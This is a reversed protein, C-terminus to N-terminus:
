AALGAPGAVAAAAVVVKLLIPLTLQAVRKSYLFLFCIIIRKFHLYPLSFTMPKPNTKFYFSPSPKKSALPPAGAVDGDGM